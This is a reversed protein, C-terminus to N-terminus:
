RNNNDIISEATSSANELACPADKFCYYGIDQLRLDVYSIGAYAEPKIENGLLYALNELQTLANREGDFYVMFGINTKVKVETAAIGPLAFNAINAVFINEPWLGHLNEIFGLTKQIELNQGESLLKGSEDIILPQLFIAPEYTLIKEFVVGDQDLFYYDELNSWVYQPKREEIGIEIKDPFIRKYSEIRRIEPFQKSLESFARSKDFLLIHNKPVLYIREMSIRRLAENIKDASPAATTVIANKVLFIRSIFLFYCATLLLGVVFIRALVSGLGLKKFVRAKFGLPVPDPKRQFRRAKALRKQFEPRRFRQKKELESKKFFM